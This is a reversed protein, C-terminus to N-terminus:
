GPFITGQVHFTHSVLGTMNDNLEVDFHDGANLDLPIGTSVFFDWDCTIFDNGTGHSIEHYDSTLHSWHANDVIAEGATLNVRETGDENYLKVEIGNTLKTLKGYEDAGFNAGDEIQVIMRHIHCVFGVPATIFFAQGASYDGIAEITGGLEGTDTLYRSLHTATTSHPNDATM